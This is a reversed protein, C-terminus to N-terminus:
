SQALIDLYHIITEIGRYYNPLYFKENPAHLNDDPLGLGMMVIAAGLTHQIDHTFPLSGGGRMFLTPANFVARYAHTAAQIAPHQYDTLVPYAYGLNEITVHVTDPALARVFAELRQFIFLPDQKPVLRMSVKAKATSPIVSKRGLATYGGPMGCIELTPRISIREASTYGMEGAVAKVGTAAMLAEDTVIGNHLLAREEASIEDVADYFNPIHIRRTQGDQLQALIRVLVNFPNDVGGGYTGSHLDTTPGRVTIEAYLHGRVSYMMMPTNPGMMPHDVILAADARLKDRNDRVFNPLSPSAIEEEGEILVKINIPCQGGSQLYAEIAKLAALFQGKDDSAGRAYVNDGQITPEFPPSTWAELPDPPQVDYHGYILLTFADSGAQLWEGYVLPYMATPIIEVADLGIRRLYDAVWQAARDIDASHEPLTSISPIRLLDLLDRLHAQQNQRAYELAATIM